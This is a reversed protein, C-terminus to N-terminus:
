NSKITAIAQSIAAELNSSLYISETIPDELNDKDLLRLIFQPHPLSDVQAEPSKPKNAEQNHDSKVKHNDENNDEAPSDPTSQVFSQCYDSIAQIIARSVPETEWINV